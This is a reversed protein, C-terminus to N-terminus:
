FLVVLCFIYISLVCYSDIARCYFYLQVIEHLKGRMKSTIIHYNFTFGHVVLNNPQANNPFSGFRLIINTEGLM